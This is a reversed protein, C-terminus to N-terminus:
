VVPVFDRIEYYDLLRQIGEAPVEIRKLRFESVPVVMPRVVAYNRVLAQHLESDENKVQDAVWSFAKSWQDKLSLENVLDTVTADPKLSSCIRHITKVPMRRISAPVKDSTDGRFVKYWVPLYDLAFGYKNEIYAKRDVEPEHFSRFWHYRGRVQLIDNDNFYASWDKSADELSTGLWSAIVDDAELGDHKVYFVNSQYCCIRLINLLDTMIKYDEYPDGTPQHRGSKYTPLVAFRHPASSDVALLVMRNQLALEQVVRIVGYVHGTPCMASVQGPSGDVSVNVMRCMDKNSHRFLYMAWSLDVIAVPKGEPM